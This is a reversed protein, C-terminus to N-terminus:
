SMFWWEGEVLKNEEMERVFYLEYPQNLLLQAKGHLKPFRGSTKHGQGLIWLQVCKKRM